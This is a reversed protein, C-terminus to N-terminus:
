KLIIMKRVEVFNDARLRYFYIGTGVAVGTDNTGNWRVEHYGAPVVDDVLREVEQGLM